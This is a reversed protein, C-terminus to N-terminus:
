PQRADLATLLGLAWLAISAGEDPIAYGSLLFLLGLATIYLPAIDRVAPDIRFISRWKM